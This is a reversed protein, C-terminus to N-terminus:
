KIIHYLNINKQKRQENENNAFTIFIAWNRSFAVQFNAKFRPFDTKIAFISLFDHFLKAM